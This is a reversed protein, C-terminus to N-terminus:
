GYVSQAAFELQRSGDIENRQQLAQKRLDGLRQTACKLNFGPKRGREHGHGIALSDFFYHLVQQKVCDLRHGALLALEGDFCPYVVAFDEKFYGVRTCAHAKLENLLAKKM